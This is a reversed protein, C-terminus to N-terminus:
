NKTPGSAPFSQDSAQDVDGWRRLQHEMAGPEADRLKRKPAKGSQAKAKGADPAARPQM